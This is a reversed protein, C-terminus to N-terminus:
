HLITGPPLLEADNTGTSFTDEIDANETMRQAIQQYLLDMALKDERENRLFMRLCNRVHSESLDQVLMMEGDKTVWVEDFQEVGTHDTYKKHEIFQLAFKGSPTQLIGVAWKKDQQLEIFKAQAEEITDYEIIM